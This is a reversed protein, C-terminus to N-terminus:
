VEFEELVNELVFLFSLFGNLVVLDIKEIGFFVFMGVDGISLKDFYGM